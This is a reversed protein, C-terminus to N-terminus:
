TCDCERSGDIKFGLKPIFTRVGKDQDDNDEIEWDLLM